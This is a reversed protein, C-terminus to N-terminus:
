AIKVYTTYQLCIFVTKIYPICRNENAIFSHIRFIDFIQYFISTSSKLTLFVYIRCWFNPDTIFVQPLICNLMNCYSVVNLISSLANLHLKIYQLVIKWSTLYLLLNSEISLIYVDRSVIFNIYAYSAFTKYRKIGSEWRSAVTVFIQYICNLMNCCSVCSYKVHQVVYM